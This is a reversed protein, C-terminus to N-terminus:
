CRTREQYDAMRRTAKELEAAPAKPTKKTYAHLLVLTRGTAAFYLVRHQLHGTVRLEWLKSGLSRVYPAGLALGFCRLREVAFRLRAAEEDALSDLYEAVPCRGAATMYPVVQWRTPM